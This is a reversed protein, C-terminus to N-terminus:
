ADDTDVVYVEVVERNWIVSDVRYLTKGTQDDNLLRVHDGRRPVPAQVYQDVSKGLPSISWLGVDSLEGHVMARFLIDM